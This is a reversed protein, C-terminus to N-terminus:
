HAMWAGRSMFPAVAVTAIVLGLEALSVRAFRGARAPSVVDDLRGGRRLAIRWRLLTVMPALELLLVAAFLALKLHFGYNHTYFYTGKELGAFARLLGSAILLLASLGWANDAAFARAVAGRDGGAVDFLARARLYISGLALAVGFVHVASALSAAVM